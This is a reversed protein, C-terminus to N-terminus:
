LYSVFPKETKMNTPDCTDSIWSDLCISWKHGRILGEGTM